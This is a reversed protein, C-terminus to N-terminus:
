SLERRSTEAAWYVSALTILCMLALYLAVPWSENHCWTLLASAILPAIGGAFPSALQYGLSAGSYRTRVGFMEAFFAAQPGYMAAHFVGLGVCLALWVLPLQGTDVLWFFPFAFLAMGAAGFLYVPRRGVYDSLLGYLPLAAFQCVSGALVAYLIATQKLKLTASTAYSLIFVTFM